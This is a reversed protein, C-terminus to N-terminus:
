PKSLCLKNVTFFISHLEPKLRTLSCMSASPLLILNQLYVPYKQWCPLFHPPMQNNKFPYDEALCQWGQTCILLFCGSDLELSWGSSDTPEQWNAETLILIVGDAKVLNPVTQLIGSIKLYQKGKRKWGCDEGEEEWFAIKQKALELNIIRQSKPRYQHIPEM